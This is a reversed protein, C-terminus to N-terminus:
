GRRLLVHGLRRFPGTWRWTRSGLIRALEAAQHQLPPQQVVLEHHASKLEALARDLEAVRAQSSQLTAELEASRALAAQSAAEATTARETAAQASAAADQASAQATAARADAENARTEAAQARADAENAKTEAATARSAAAQAAAEANAAKANAAQAAADWAAARSASAQASAARASLRAQLSERDPDDIRMDALAVRADALAQPRAYVLLVQDGAWRSDPWDAVDAASAHALVWGDRAAPIAEPTFQVFHEAELKDGERWPLLLVLFRDASAAMTDFTAWPREFHELTNSSFVIDFRTNLAKESGPAALMDAVEFAVDPHRERALAIGEAAFDVGTTPIGLGKALVETGAGEACGIDCLTMPAGDTGGGRACAKLWDPMLALAVGAFFRSQPGGGNVDWDTRFRADWYDRSNVDSM